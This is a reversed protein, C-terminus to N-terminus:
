EIKHYVVKPPPPPNYHAGRYNEGGYHLIVGNPAYIVQLSSTSIPLKYTTHQTQLSQLPPQYGATTNHTRSTYHKLRSDNFANYPSFVEGYESVYALSQPKFSWTEVHEIEVTRTASYKPEPLGRAKGWTTILKKGKLTEYIHNLVRQYQATTLECEVPKFSLPKVTYKFLEFFCKEIDHIPQINQAAPVSGHAYNLWRRVIFQATEKDPVILHFHPHFGNKKSWTTELVCIATLNPFVVEGNRKKRAADKTVKNRVTILKELLVAYECNATHPITLTVFQPEKWSDVLDKFKAYNYAARISNCQNCTKSHCYWTRFYPYSVGDKTLTFEQM